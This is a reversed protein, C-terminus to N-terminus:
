LGAERSATSNTLAVIQAEAQQVSADITLLAANTHVHDSVKMRLTQDERLRTIARAWDDPDSSNIVCASYLEPDTFLLPAVGYESGIVVPLGALAAEAASRGFAERRSTGVFASAGDWLRAHDVWGRLELASVRNRRVDDDLPGAGYLRGPWDTRKVIEAFLEPRKDIDLRGAWVLPGEAGHGYHTRQTRPIGARVIKAERVSAFERALTPTTAWVEDAARLARGEVWKLLASRLRGQEGRAPWPKGRVWAVWRRGSTVRMRSLAVDSQSILTVVVDADAFESSSELLSRLAVTGARGRADFTFERVGDTQRSEGQASSRMGVLATWNLGQTRASTVLDHTSRYVGSRAMLPVAM